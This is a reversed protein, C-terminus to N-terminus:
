PLKQVQIPANSPPPGSPGAYAPPPPGAQPSPPPMAANPDGQRIEVYSVVRQVGPVYRALETARGLEEQSRASGILYVSRHDTEILYNGSRVDLDFVLDSKVRTTIWGDQAMDWSSQPPGAVIENYVARVGPMQGVVQEAQSRQEPGPSSGTLLVRGWYVTVTIDGYQGGLARSIDTKLKVDDFAGNLGREQAAQYGVGGTAAMGGIIAAACGGLCPAFALACVAAVTVNFRAM